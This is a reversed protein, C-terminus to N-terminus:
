KARRAAIKRASLIARALKDDSDARSRNYSCGYIAVDGDEDPVIKEAAKLVWIAARLADIERRPGSNNWGKHIFTKCNEIGQLCMDIAEDFTGRKKKM